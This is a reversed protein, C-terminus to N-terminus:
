LQVLTNIDDLVIYLKLNLDNQINEIQSHVITLDWLRRRSRNYIEQM